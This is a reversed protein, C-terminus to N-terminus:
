FSKAKSYAKVSKLVFQHHYKIQEDSYMHYQGYPCAKRSACSKSCVDSSLRFEMCARWDWGKDTVTDAPCADICPKECSPCPNFESIPNEYREFEVDTLMAGRLSMWTGYEPHLLIGLLSPVGVGGMMGLLTFDLDYASEGFPYAIKFEGGNVENLTGALKEITIKTYNDILNENKNKFEPNQRLFSQLVPWFKNGAFGILIISRADNLLTCARKKEPVISDYLAADIRVAINFGSENLHSKVKRWTNESNM